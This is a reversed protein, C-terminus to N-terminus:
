SFMPQSRRLSGPLPAGSRNTTRRARVRISTYLEGDIFDIAQQADCRSMTGHNILGDEVRSQAALLDVSQAPAIKIEGCGRCPQFDGGGNRLVPLLRHM